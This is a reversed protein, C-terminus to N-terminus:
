RSSATSPRPMLISWTSAPFERTYAFNRFGEMTDGASSEAITVPLKFRPQLYDLIGCIADAHTAALQNTTSVNNVKVVVYKKGAILPVSRTTSPPWRM